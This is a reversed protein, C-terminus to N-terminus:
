WRSGARQRQAGGAFTSMAWDVIWTLVGKWRRTMVKQWVEEMSQIHYTLKELEEQSFYSSNFLSPNHYIYLVTPVDQIAAALMLM